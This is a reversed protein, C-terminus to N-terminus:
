MKSLVALLFDWEISDFAKQADAFYFLAPHQSNGLSHILNCIRRISACLYRNKLFGLQDLHIYSTAIVNMRNAWISMLIKYDINLISIPRYSHPLTPDRDKKLIVVMRAQLWSPPIHKNILCENFLTCLKPALETKFKKYFKATFGDLGPVKNNTLGDIAVEVEAMTISCDMM